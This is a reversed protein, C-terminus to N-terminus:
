EFDVQGMAIFLQVAEDSPLYKYLENSILPKLSNIMGREYLYRVCKLADVDKKDLAKM